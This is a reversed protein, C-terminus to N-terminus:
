KGICLPCPTVWDQSYEQWYAIQKKSIYRKNDTMLVVPCLTKHYITKVEYWQVNLASFDTVAYYDKGIYAQMMFGIILYVIAIALVSVLTNERIFKLLVGLFSSKNHRTNLTERPADTRINPADIDAAPGYYTIDNKGTSM